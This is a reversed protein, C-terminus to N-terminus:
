VSPAARCTKGPAEITEVAHAAILDAANDIGPYAPAREPPYPMLDALREGHDRGLGAEVPRGGTKRALTFNGTQLYREKVVETYHAFM